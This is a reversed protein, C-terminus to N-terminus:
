GINYIIGMPFGARLTPAGKVYTGFEQRLSTRAFDISMYEYALLMEVPNPINANPYYQGLNDCWLLATGPPMYPHVEFDVRQNTYNNLVGSVGLGGTVNFDGGKADLRVYPASSGTIVDIAKRIDAPSMFIRTTGVQAGVFLSQFATDFEAIYNKTGSLPAGDLSKIYGAKTAFLKILGDYGNTDVTLNAVNPVNTSGGLGSVTTATFKNTTVTGLYVRGDGANTGGYVNYAVAGPIATWGFTLSDSGAGSAETTLATSAAATTEGVASTAGTGGKSGKRYGLFILASVTFKYATSATLSGTGAAAKTQGTLSPAGPAALQTLNGGLLAREERMMLAQLAALRAVQDPRFDMGSNVTTNGGYRADETIYNDLGLTKFAVLDDVESLKMFGARGAVSNATTDTNEAVFGYDQDTDIATIRKWHHGTGGIVKRPIANRLPTVVPWLNLAPAELSYPVLGVATTMGSNGTVDKQIPAAMAADLSKRLREKREAPLNNLYTGFAGVNATPEVAAKAVINDIDDM